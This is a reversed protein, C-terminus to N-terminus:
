LKILQICERDDGSRICLSYIGSTLQPFSLTGNVTGAAVDLSESVQLTGRLDYLELSCQGAEKLVLQYFLVGETPNPGIRMSSILDIESVDVVVVELDSSAAVCGDADTIELSYFGGVEVIWTSATAGPIVEGDLYWQYQDFPGNTVTLTDGLLSFEPAAIMGAGVEQEYIFTCGNATTVEAVYIGPPLDSITSGTGVGVWNISQPDDGTWSLEISGNMAEACTADTAQGTLVFEAQSDTVRSITGAGLSAVYLEGQWDEGFSSIEFNSVNAVEADNWGDQGDPWLAWFRGSCYDAFIYYGYMEPYRCGRYVFGGTVSCGTPLNSFYEFVPAEYDEFPGCNSTNFDNFGEYCRWGFNPGSNLQDAPLFDIEEWLEQGVDGIWLDGTLLDFSFRWPNRLGIAIIEDLVNPDNLFPNESPISYPTGNDVDIRLMKGLFKTTTQSNNGTDNAGGGDGTGIYLYGDPGFAIDGGNHNSAPQDFTLLIEESSADAINPNFDSVSFRSIFSDGGSGTYYVYFYGNNAYDPHFALGLLGRENGSDNVTNTISLFPAPLVDGDEDIVHIEGEQEVVFLRADGAHAIDVPRVFGSAIVELSVVPQSSLSIGLFLLPLVLLVNKM